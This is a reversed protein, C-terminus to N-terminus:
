ASQYHAAPDLAAADNPGISARGCRVACRTQAARQASKAVAAPRLRPRAQSTRCARWSRRDPRDVPAPPQYNPGPLVTALPRYLAAFTAPDLQERGPDGLAVIQASELAVSAVAEPRGQSDGSKTQAVQVRDHLCEGHGPRCQLAPQELVQEVDATSARQRSLVRVTAIWEWQAKGFNKVAAGLVSGGRGRELGGRGARSCAKARLKDIPHYADVIRMTGSASRLVMSQTYAYVDENVSARSCSARRTARPPRFFIDNGSCLDDLISSGKNPEHGGRPLPERERRPVV